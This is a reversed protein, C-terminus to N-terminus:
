LFIEDLLNCFFSRIRISKCPFGRRLPTEPMHQVAPTVRLSKMGAIQTLIRTMRLVHIKECKSETCVRRVNRNSKVPCSQYVVM